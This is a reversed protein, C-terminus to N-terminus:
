LKTIEYSALDNVMSNACILNAYEYADFMTLQETISTWLENGDIDQFSIKFKTM